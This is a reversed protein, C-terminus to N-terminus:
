EECRVYARAVDNDLLYTILWVSRYPNDVHAQKQWAILINLLQQCEVTVCLQNQNCKMMTGYAVAEPDGTHLEGHFFTQLNFNEYSHCDCCWLATYLLM